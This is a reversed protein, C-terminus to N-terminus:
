VRLVMFGFGVRWCCTDEELRFELRKFGFEYIGIGM